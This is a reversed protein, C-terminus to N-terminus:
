KFVNKKWVQSVVGLRIRVQKVNDSDFRCPSSNLNGYNFWAYMLKSYEMLAAESIKDTQIGPM